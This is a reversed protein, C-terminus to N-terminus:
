KMILYKAINVWWREITLRCNLVPSYIVYGLLVVNGLTFCSIKGKLWKFPNFFVLFGALYTAVVMERPPISINPYTILFM